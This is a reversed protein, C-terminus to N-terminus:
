WRWCGSAGRATRRRRGTCSARTWSRRWFTSCRRRLTKGPDCVAEAAELTCGGAFVSRRGFLLREEVGLLDYSWGIADRLTKQRVPADRPGGKLLRLRQRLRELIARPSLLRIRTAALEIALPMGDLRVCIEAVVPAYEETLRFDPKALKAREVFFAVAGYESLTRIDEPLQEVDPLGLPPVPFVRECSLHLVERSTALVKLRPCVALLEAVPPAAEVVQEFNDLFLLLEREKLLEGLRESLPREGLERLGLTRAITPVVLDPERIPALSVFCVGDAFEGALEEAVRIGLRTKGVGGPGTHTLLRTEESRLLACVEEVEQKRGVLPTLQAPLNTQSTLQSEALEKADPVFV